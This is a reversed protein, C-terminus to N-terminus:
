ETEITEDFDLIHDIVQIFYSDITEGAVLIPDFGEHINPQVNASITIISKLKNAERDALKNRNEPTDVGHLEDTLITRM